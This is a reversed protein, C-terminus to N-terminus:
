AMEETTKEVEHANLAGRLVRAHDEYRFMAIREDHKRDVVVYAWRDDGILGGHIVEFRDGIM